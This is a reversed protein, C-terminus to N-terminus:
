FVYQIPSIVHTVWNELSSLHGNWSIYSFPKKFKSKQILLYLYLFLIIKFLHWPMVMPLAGLWNILQNAYTWLIPCMIYSFWTCIFFTFSMYFCPKSEFLYVIVLPCKYSHFISAHFWCAKITTTLNCLSTSSKKKYLGQSM